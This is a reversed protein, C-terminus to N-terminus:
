FHPLENNLLEDYTYALSYVEQPYLDPMKCVEASIVYVIYNVPRLGLTKIAEYEDNLLESAYLEFKNEIPYYASEVTTYFSKNKRKFATIIEDASTPTIQDNLLINLVVCDCILLSSMYHMSKFRKTVIAAVHMRFSSSVSAEALRFLTDDQINKRM